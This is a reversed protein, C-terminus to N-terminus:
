FSNCFTQCFEEPLGSIGPAKEGKMGQLAAWLEELVLLKGVEINDEAKFVPLGTCFYDMVNM